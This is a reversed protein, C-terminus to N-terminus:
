CKEYDIETAECFALYEESEFQAIYDDYDAGLTERLMKDYAAFWYDSENEIM